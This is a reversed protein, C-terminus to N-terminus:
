LLWVDINWDFSSLYTSSIPVTGRNVDGNGRLVSM